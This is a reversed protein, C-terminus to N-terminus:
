NLRILQPRPPTASADYFAAVKASVTPDGISWGVVPPSFRSLNVTSELVVALGATAEPAAQFDFGTGRPTASGFSWAVFADDLKVPVGHITNAASYAQGASLAAVRNAAGGGRDGWEKVAALAAAEMANELQVRAQWLRNMEAVGVLVTVLLPICLITWITVAGRRQSAPCRRGTRGTATCGFGPAERSAQHM